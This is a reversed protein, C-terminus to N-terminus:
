NLKLYHDGNVTRVKIRSGFLCDVLRVKEESLINFGEIKFFEHEKVELNVILQGTSLHRGEIM